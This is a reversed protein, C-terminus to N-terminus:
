LSTMIAIASPLYPRCFFAGRSPKPSSRPLLPASPSPPLNLVSLAGVRSAGFHEGSIRRARERYAATKATDCRASTMSASHERRPAIRSCTGCSLCSRTAYKEMLKVINYRGRRGCPECEISLTPVRFDSLTLYDRRNERM